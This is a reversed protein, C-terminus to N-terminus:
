TPNNDKPGTPRQSPSPVIEFIHTCNLMTSEIRIKTSFMQPLACNEFYTYLEFNKIRNHNTHWINSPIILNSQQRHPKQGTPGPPPYYM